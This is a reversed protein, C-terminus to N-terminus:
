ADRRAQGRRRGSELRRHRCPSAFDSLQSARPRGVSVRKVFAGSVPDPDPHSWPPDTRVLRGLAHGDDAHDRPDGTRRHGSRHRFPHSGPARAPSRPGPEEPTRGSPRTRFTRSGAADPHGRDRSPAPADVKQHRGDRTGTHPAPGQPGTGSSPGSPEEERDREPAAGRPTTVWNENPPRSRCERERPPHGRPGGGSVM